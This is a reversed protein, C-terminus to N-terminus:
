VKSKRSRSEIRDIKQRAMTKVNALILAVDMALIAELDSVAQQDDRNAAHLLARNYLTMAVVDAPAGPMVIAATYDDLAGHHDHMLAKAMGRKYLSLAKGQGSRMNKLWTFINM